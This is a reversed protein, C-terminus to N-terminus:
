FIEEKERRWEKKGQSSMVGMLKHYTDKMIM